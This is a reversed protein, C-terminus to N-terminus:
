YSSLGGITQFAAWYYPHRYRQDAGRAMEIQAGRLGKAVPAADRRHRHFSAMLEASAESDVPWLTAVVTPVGAILFPRAAGIAGEGAYQQEIGTQCGSLVVLRTRPLSLSYIEYSQLFGNATEKELNGREPTLPFGSLTETQDNVVYHMALHAVDAKEIQSRVATETAEDRLLLRSKPNPYFTLVTQAETAASRLEVLSDFDTQNFHPNGVSLLEEEFAGAKSQASRTLDIFTTTSPATGMDYDEILFRATAPSVLAQYPVYNLIKDPVICLYKSKDLFSEVPAILIRYLDEAAMAEESPNGAPPKNVTELFAHVRQNLQESGLPVEHHHIESPTVVWMLLQDDLVAYQLIQSEPPMSKQIESLSMSRTVTPLNVEPEDNRELVQAGQRIEDLFARARSEESYDFAQNLDHMRASAYFIALDYVSQQNAFFSVRQSEDTIKSRYEGCLALVKPLEEAAARDNNNAIFCVLKGKHAGYSYYEVQLEKYIDISKDYDDIAQDCDGSQRHIDGLQQAAHAIIEMGGSNKPMAEGIEMARKAAEVGDAYRKVAAYESGLYDYSRSTILPRGMKLAVELAEKQYVLAAQHLSQSGMDFALQQLMGWKAMPETPAETGLALARNLYKLARDIRNLTQNAQALQTLSKLIGNLDGAREFSTLARHSYDVAKSYESNDYSAHSLGYLCQAILWRYERALCTESLRKFILEAQKLDKLFLYCHALRYEVFIQETLDGLKEYQRKAESYSAVADKFKSTTFLVYAGRMTRHADVSVQRRKPLERELQSVLDSTYRDSARELELKALYSLASFPDQIGTQTSPELLADLLANTVENGGSTYNQTIVKWADDDDRRERAALFNHLADVTNWSTKQRGEELQKLNRKAEEAWPSNHDRELYEKWGAEAERSAMMYQYDLARNFLAELLNPNLELAKNLHELSRGFEEIGKGPEKGGQDIKGKELWAAGLDSYIQANDPDGKLAEDFQEIAKDFEKKALYVKGLAYRTAPTPNRDKAELLRLEALRLSEQDINSTEGAGRTNNFPAYDFGAIRSPFPRENRYAAQLAALGNNVEANRSSARWIYVGGAAILLCAAIALLPKIWRKKGSEAKRKKLALAFKLKERRVDSQFFNREVLGLEEGAFRGSIYDDTIENVVIDYEEALDPETLLRLEVQEEEAESLQGLLYERVNHEEAQAM